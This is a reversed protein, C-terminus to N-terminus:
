GITAQDATTTTAVPRPGVAPENAMMAPANPTSMTPREPEAPRGPTQPQNTPKWMSSFIREKNPYFDRAASAHGFRITSGLRLILATSFGKNEVSNGLKTRGGTNGCSPVRFGNVRWKPERVTYPNGFLSERNVIGCPTRLISM